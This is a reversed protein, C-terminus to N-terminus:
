EDKSKKKLKSASPAKAGKNLARDIQRIAQRLRQENEVLAVRVYGEGQEGFAGGPAVAVEAEELLRLAFEVSDQGALHKPAVKAWVFMSARPMEVHWGARRLGHVVVNRRSEYLKAQEEVGKDCDRLAIISAVQVATFIGYDYYGKISALAKIMEANGVCFGIRWGAMSYPKSMTLFEVGVDKAGKAQLFSPAVYDDFITQGYAFDHIIMMGTRRALEVAQEFFEVNDVTMATPNHPYNLILLKPKPFLHDAVNAVRGLFAEDNGLPVNIVNGGALAIGYVHIPFYPDGVVVMDGPGILALCMHSFGEKSGVTAIVESNPDLTVGFRRKYMKAVERRLNPIGISQSYGHIRPDRIVECMKEIVEPPPPDHPNGMGLDIVDVGERRKRDRLANVRGFVYPPLRRMRSPLEIHLNESM